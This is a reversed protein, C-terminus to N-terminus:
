PLQRRSYRPAAMAVILPEFLPAQSECPISNDHYHRREQPEYLFKTTRMAPPSIGIELLLLLSFIVVIWEIEWQRLRYSISIPLM